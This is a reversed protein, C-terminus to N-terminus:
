QLPDAAPYSLLAARGSEIITGAIGGALLAALAFGGPLSLWRLDRPAGGFSLVLALVYTGIPVLVFGAIVAVTTVLGFLMGRIMRKIGWGSAILASLTGSGFCFATVITFTFAVSSVVDPEVGWRDFSAQRARMTEDTNINLDGPSALGTQALYHDSLLAGAVAFGIVWILAQGIARGSGYPRTALHTPVGFAAAGAAVFLVAAIPQARTADLVFLLLIIAGVCWGFGWAAISRM